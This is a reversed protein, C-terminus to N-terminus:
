IFQVSVYVIDNLPVLCQVCGNDDRIRVDVKSKLDEVDFSCEFWETDKNKGIVFESSKLINGDKNFEAVLRKEKPSLEIFIPGSQLGRVFGEQEVIMAATKSKKRKYELNENFAVIRVNIKKQQVKYYLVIHFQLQQNILELLSPILNYPSRNLYLVWIKAPEQVPIIIEPCTGTSFSLLKLPKLLSKKVTSNSM